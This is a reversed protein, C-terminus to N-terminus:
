FGRIGRSYKTVCIAACSGFNSRPDSPMRPGRRPGRELTRRLRVLSRRIEPRPFWVDADSHLSRQRNIQQLRSVRGDCRLLDRPLRSRGTRRQLIRGSLIRYTTRHQLSDIGWRPRKQKGHGHSLSQRHKTLIELWLRPILFLGAQCPLSSSRVPDPETDLGTRVVAACDKKKRRQASSSAVGFGSTSRSHSSFFHMRHNSSM